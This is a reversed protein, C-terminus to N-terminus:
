AAIPLNPFSFSMVAQEEDQINVFLCGGIQEALKQIQQLNANVPSNAACGKQHVELVFVFGYKKASLRICKNRADNVITAIMGSIVSAVWEKNHEVPLEQPIDNVFFNHNRVAAPSFNNILRDVLHHLPEMFDTENSLYYTNM